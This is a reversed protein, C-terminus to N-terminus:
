GERIINDVLAYAFSAIEDPEFGDDILDEGIQRLGKAINNVDNASIISDMKSYTSPGPLEVKLMKAENLISQTKEEFKM